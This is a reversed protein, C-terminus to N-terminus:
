QKTDNDDKKDPKVKGTLEPIVIGWIWLSLGLLLGIVSGTKITNCLELLSIDLSLIGFKFFAVMNGIYLGAIGLVSTIVPFFLIWILIKINFIKNTRM